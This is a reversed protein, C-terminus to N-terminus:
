FLEEDEPQVDDAPPPTKNAFMFDMRPMQSLTGEEVFRVLNAGVEAETAEIVDAMFDWDGFWALDHRTIPLDKYMMVTKKHELDRSTAFAKFFFDTQTGDNAEEPDAFMFVMVWGEPITKNEELTKMVDRLMPPEQQQHACTEMDCCDHEEDKKENDKSISM